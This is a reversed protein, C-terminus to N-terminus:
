KMEGYFIQAHVTSNFLPWISHSSDWGIMKWFKLSFNTFEFLHWLEDLILLSKYEYQLLLTNPLQQSQLEGIDFNTWHQSSHFISALHESSAIKAFAM